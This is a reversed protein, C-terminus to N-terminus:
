SLMPTAPAVAASASCVMSPEIFAMFAAMSLRIIPKPSASASMSISHLLTTSAKWSTIVFMVGTISFMIEASGVARFASSEVTPSSRGVSNSVTTSRNEWTSFVMSVMSGSSIGTTISANIVMTFVSISFRGSSM